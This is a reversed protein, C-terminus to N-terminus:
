AIAQAHPWRYTMALYHGTAGQFIDAAMVPNIWQSEYIATGQLEDEIILKVKRTVRDHVVRTIRPGGVAHWRFYGEVRAEREDQRFAHALLSRELVPTGGLCWFADVATNDM